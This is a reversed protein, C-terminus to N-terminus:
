GKMKGLDILHTGLVEPIATTLLLSGGGLPEEAKLYNFRIWSFAGYPAALTYLLFIAQFLIKTKVRILGEIVNLFLANFGVICKYQEHQIFQKWFRKLSVFLFKNM